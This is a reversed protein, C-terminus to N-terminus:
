CFWKNEIFIIWQKDFRQTSAQSNSKGPITSETSILPLCSAHLKLEEKSTICVNRDPCETLFTDEGGAKTDCAGTSCIRAVTEWYKHVTSQLGVTSPHSGTPFLLFFAVQHPLQHLLRLYVFSTQTSLLIFLHSELEHHSNSNSLILFM